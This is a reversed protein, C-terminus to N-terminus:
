AQDLGALRVDAGASCASQVSDWHEQLSNDGHIVIVCM